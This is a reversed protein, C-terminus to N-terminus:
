LMKEVFVYKSQFVNGPIRLYVTKFSSQPNSDIAYVNAIVSESLGPYLATDGLAIDTDKPVEVAFNAGGRGVLEFSNGTRLITAEQGVTNKSFLEVLSAHSTVSVISGVIVNGSLYVCAHVCDRM